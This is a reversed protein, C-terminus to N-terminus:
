AMAVQIKAIVDDATDYKDTSLLIDHKDRVVLHATEFYEGRERTSLKTVRIIHYVNIYHEAGDRDKVWIFRTM